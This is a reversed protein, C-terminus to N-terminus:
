PGDERDDRVDARLGPAALGAAARPPEDTRENLAELLQRRLEDDGKADTVCHV